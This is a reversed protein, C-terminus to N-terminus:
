QSDTCEFNSMKYYNLHDWVSDGVTGDSCHIDEGDACFDYSDMEFDYWAENNTHHFGIGVPPLHPVIDHYHVVRGQKGRLTSAWYKAWDSNGTRPTGYSVSSVNASPGFTEQIDIAAIQGMSAGLSHGTVLINPTGHKNMLQQIYPTTQNKLSLYAKYFGDEVKGQAKYPTTKAFQLNLLWNQPSSVAGLRHSRPSSFGAGVFLLFRMCFGPDLRCLRSRLM